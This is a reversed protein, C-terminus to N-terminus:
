QEFNVHIPSKGEALHQRYASPPMGIARSFSQSFSNISEFGCRKAVDSISLDPCNILQVGRTLRSQRLYAGLSVGFNERFVKRLNSESMELHKAIDDIRVAFDMERDVFRAIKKLFHNTEHEQLDITDVPSLTHTKVASQCVRGMTLAAEFIDLESCPDLYIQTAQKISKLHADTLETMLGSKIPLLNKSSLDFTFFLWLFGDEPVNYYRHFTEPPILTASGPNFDYEDDGLCVRASGSYNVVLEYRQHLNQTVRTPSLEEANQRLFFMYNNPMVGNQWVHGHYHDPLDGIAKLWKPATDEKTPHLQTHYEEPKATEM